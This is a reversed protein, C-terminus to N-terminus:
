LYYYLYNNHICPEHHLVVLGLEQLRSFCQKANRDVDGPIGYHAIHRIAPVDTCSAMQAQTHKLLRKNKLKCKYKHNNTYIYKFNLGHKLM